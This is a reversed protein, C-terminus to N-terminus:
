MYFFVILQLSFHSSVSIVSSLSTAKIIYKDKKKWWREKYIYISLLAKLLNFLKSPTHSEKNYIFEWIGEPSNIPFLIRSTKISILNTKSPTHSEKNYIFEWIGEPSNM